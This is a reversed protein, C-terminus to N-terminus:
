ISCVPQFYVSPKKCKRHRTWTENTATHQNRNQLNNASMTWHHAIGLLRATFPLAVILKLCLVNQLIM